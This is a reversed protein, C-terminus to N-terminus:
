LRTTTVRTVVHRRSSTTCTGQMQIQLLALFIRNRVRAAAFALRGDFNEACGYVYLSTFTIGYSIRGNKAYERLIVFSRETVAQKRFSAWTCYARSIFEFFAHVKISTKYNSIALLRRIKVNRWKESTLSWFIVNNKIRSM